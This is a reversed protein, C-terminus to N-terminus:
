LRDRHGYGSTDIHEHYWYQSSAHYTPAQAPSKAFGASKLAAVAQYLDLLDQIRDVDVRKADFVQAKFLLYNMDTDGGPLKNTSNTGNDDDSCGWIYLALCVALVVVIFVKPFAKM